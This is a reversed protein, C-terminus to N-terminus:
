GPALITSCFILTRLVSSSCFNSNFESPQISQREKKETLFFWLEGGRFLYLAKARCSEYQTGTHVKDTHSLNWKCTCHKYVVNGSTQPLRAMKSTASNSFLCTELLQNLLCHSFAPPYKKISHPKGM